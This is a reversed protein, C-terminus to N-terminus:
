FSNFRGESHTLVDQLFDKDNGLANNQEADQIVPKFIIIDINHKLLEMTLSKVPQPVDYDMLIVFIKEPLSKQHETFNYLERLSCLEYGNQALQAVEQEFEKVALLKINRKILDLKKYKLVSTKQRHIKFPWYRIFVIMVIFALLICSFIILQESFM